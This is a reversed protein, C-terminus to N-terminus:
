PSPDKPLSALYAKGADSIVYRIAGDSFKRDVLKRGHLFEIAPTMWSGWGTITTPEGNLDRLLELELACLNDM